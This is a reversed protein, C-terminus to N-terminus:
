GVCARTTATHSVPLRGRGGRAHRRRRARGRRPDGPTRRRRDLPRSGGCRVAPDHEPHRAAPDADLVVLDAARGAAIRGTDAGLYRAPEATAAHLAAMPSLGAEVLLALEDHVSFGPYVAVTGTDTGTMIPAGTEQMERVTRLRHAHDLGRHMVLTSM